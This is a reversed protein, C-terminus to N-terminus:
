SYMSLKKWHKLFLRDAILEFIDDIIKNQFTSKERNELIKHIKSV